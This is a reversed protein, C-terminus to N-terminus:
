NADVVRAVLIKKKLTQPYTTSNRVIISVNKSGNHMGTYANQVTLGQPLSGEEACLAHTRVNLRAGTFTTEMKAQIIRSSFADIMESDKTTVVEDYETPGLVKTTIKDDEM